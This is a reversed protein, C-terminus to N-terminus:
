AAQKELERAVRLETVENRLEQLEDALRHIATEEFHMVLALRAYQGVSMEFQEAREKLLDTYPRGLRYAITPERRRKSSSM